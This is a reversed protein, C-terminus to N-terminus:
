LAPQGLFLLALLPNLESGIAAQAAELPDGSFLGASVAKALDFIQDGIAIGSRKDGQREFIGFPLNQIPFDTDGKNASEIWSKRLPDHTDNIPM